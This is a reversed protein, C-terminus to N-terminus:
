NILLCEEFFKHEGLKKLDMDKVTINSESMVSVAEYYSERIIVTCNDEPKFRIASNDYFSKYTYHEVPNDNITGDANLFTKGLTYDKFLEKSMPTDPAISPVLIESDGAHEFKDKKVTICFGEVVVPMDDPYDELREKLEKVTM